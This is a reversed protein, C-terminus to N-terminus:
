ASVLMTYRASQIPLDQQPPLQHDFPGEMRYLLSALEHEGAASAQRRADACDIAIIWGVVEHAADRKLICIM